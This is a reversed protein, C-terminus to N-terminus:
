FFPHAQLESTLLMQQKKLSQLNTGQEWVVARLQREMQLPDLARKQDRHVGPICM